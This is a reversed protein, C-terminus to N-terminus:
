KNLFRNLNKNFYFVTKDSITVVFLAFNAKLKQIYILNLKQNLLKLIEYSIKISYINTLYKDSHTIITLLKSRTIMIIIIM